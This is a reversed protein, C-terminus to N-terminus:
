VNVSLSVFRIASYQFLIEVIYTVIYTCHTEYNNFTQWQLAHWLEGFRRFSSASVCVAGVFLYSEHVVSYKLIRLWLNLM